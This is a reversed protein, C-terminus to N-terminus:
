NYAPRLEIRDSATAILSAIFNHTNRYIVAKAACESRAAYGSSAGIWLANSVSQYIGQFYM